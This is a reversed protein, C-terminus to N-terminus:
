IGPTGEDAKADEICSCLQIALHNDVAHHLLDEAARLAPGRVAGHICEQARAAVAALGDAAAAVATWATFTSHESNSSGSSSSGPPARLTLLSSYLKYM